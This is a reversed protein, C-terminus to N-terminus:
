GLNQFRFGTAPSLLSTKLIGAHVLLKSNVFFSNSVIVSRSTRGAATGSNGINLLIVRPIFLGMATRERCLLAVTSLCCLSNVSPQSGKSIPYEAATYKWMHSFQYIRPSCLCLLRSARHRRLKLDPFDQSRKRLSSKLVPQWYIVIFPNEHLLTVHSQLVVHPKGCSLGSRRIPQLLQLQPYLPFAKNPM